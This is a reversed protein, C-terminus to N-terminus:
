FPNCLLIVSVIGIMFGIIKQCSLREKFLIYSAVATLILHGGNVVPFFVASDLVGSLYLNIKNNAAVCAGAIIILTIICPSVESKFDSFGFSHKQKVILLQVFSYVTSIAFAIVLFGDLETKYPTNQHWKQMVGILGTCLFAGLAYILWLLSAKKDPTSYDVSLVFCLLMLFVGVIQITSIEENWFVFGSMAPIITSLSSIVTTYSLPGKSIAKMSFITQMATVVGFVTGLGLTFLSIKLGGSVAFLGICSVLSIIMNYVHYMVDKNKFRGSCFKLIIASSLCVTMTVALLIYKM